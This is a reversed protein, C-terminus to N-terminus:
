SNQLLCYENVFICNIYEYYVNLKGNNLFFNIHKSKKVIATVFRFILLM